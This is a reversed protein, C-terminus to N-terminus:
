KKKLTILEDNNLFDINERFISNKIIKKNTLCITKAKLKNIKIEGRLQSKEYLSLCM